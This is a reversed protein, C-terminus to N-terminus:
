KIINQQKKTPPIPPRTKLQPFCSHLQLRKMMKAALITVASVGGVVLKKMKLIAVTLVEAAHNEAEMCEASASHM